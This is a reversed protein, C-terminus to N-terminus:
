TTEAESHTRPIRPRKWVIKSNWRRNPGKTADVSRKAHIRRVLVESADLNELEEIDAVLFDGEGFDEGVILAFGLFMGALDKKGIKHSSM